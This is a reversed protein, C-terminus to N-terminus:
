KSKNLRRIKSRQDPSEYYERLIKNDINPPRKRVLKLNKQLYSSSKFPVTESFCSPSSINQMENIVRKNSESSYLIASSMASKITDESIFALRKPVDEFYCGPTILACVLHAWYPRGTFANNINALAKIAGGRM